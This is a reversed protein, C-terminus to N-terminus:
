PSRSGNKELISSIRHENVAEAQRKLVIPVRKWGIHVRLWENLTEPQIGSQRMAASLSKTNLKIRKAVCVCTEHAQQHSVRINARKVIEKFLVEQILEDRAAQEAKSALERSTLKLLLARQVIQEHTVQAGNVILDGRDTAGAPVVGDLCIGLALMTVLNGPLCYRM